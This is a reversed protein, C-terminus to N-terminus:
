WHYAFGALVPDVLDVISTVAISAIPCGVSFADVQKRAAELMVRLFNNFGWTRHM